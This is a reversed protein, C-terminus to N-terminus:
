FFCFIFYGSMCPIKSVDNLFDPNESTGTDSSNNNTVPCLDAGCIQNKNKGRVFMSKKASVANYDDNTDNWSLSFMLGAM